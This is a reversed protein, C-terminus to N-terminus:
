QVDNYFGREKIYKLFLEFRERKRKLYHADKSNYYIFKYFKYVDKMKSYNIRFINSHAYINKNTMDCKTYLINELVKMFNYNGNILHVTFYLYSYKHSISICGDGDFLGRIFDPLLNEDLWEPFNSIFTKNQIIGKNKLKSSINENKITLNCYYKHFKKNYINIIPQESKLDNKLQELIYKDEEKLTLAVYNRKENNCGDAYLLGLWYAKEPIDINNFYNENIKYRRKCHSWDRIKINNDRLIKLISGESINYIKKIKSSSQNNNYLNIIQQIDEYTLKDINTIRNIKLDKAKGKLSNYQRNYKIELEEDSLINEEWDKTFQKLEDEEWKRMRINRNSKINNRTCYSRISDYKRNYKQELEKPLLVGYDIKISEKEINTWKKHIQM